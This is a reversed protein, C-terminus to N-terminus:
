DRWPERERSTVAGQSPARRRSEALERVARAAARMERASTFIGWSLRVTGEPFTGLTQHARPACHLGIRSLIGYRDELIGGAESPSLGDFALSVVGTQRRPDRPGHITAGRAGQIENLFIELLKGDHERVTDIGRELLFGAAAALGAIGIVNLTGSEYRDPLFQPQEERDSLSGTGGRMLPQLDAERGVYLGGTGQPGLLGKHGSFALYDIGTAKVDIPICGATQAADVLLPVGLGRCHAGIRGIDTIAGTVNSAHTVAALRTGPRVRSSFEEADLEGTKSAQVVEVMLGEAALVSLPRLVSNHEMSTTVVRDGPRLLGRLVINLAETANKTFIIRSPDEVCFLAALRERAELVIRGAQIARSHGSRGPNGGCRRFYSKMAEMVCAPKPWSTAANDLYIESRM